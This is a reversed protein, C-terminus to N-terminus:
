ASPSRLTYHAYTVLDARLAVVHRLDTTPAAYNCATKPAPAGVCPAYKAYTVLDARLAVVFHAAFGGDM